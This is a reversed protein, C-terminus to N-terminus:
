GAARKRLGKAIEEMSRLIRSRAEGLRTPVPRSGPGVLFLDQNIEIQVFFMDSSSFERAYHTTIFGGSYPHNISVSFGNNEFSEKMLYLTEAPCTPSGMEPHAAGALDGNNGLVIDKRREGADPAEKPGIGNLSHCDFMGMIDPRALEQRLRTHYPWYFAKLREVVEMGVPTGGSPYVSRGHYDVLPIVGKPGTDSHSRNLDVVLRSWKSEVIAAAPLEGFIERTGTDCSDAIEAKSLAFAAKIASPAQFACHPISFLFPLEIM